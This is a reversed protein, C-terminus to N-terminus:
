KNPLLLHKKIDLAGHFVGVIDIDRNEKMWYAIRYHGYLLVRVHEQYDRLRYGIEPFEHLVEVKQHIGEVLQLAATPKDIAIYDHVKRLWARGKHTWKIKGV